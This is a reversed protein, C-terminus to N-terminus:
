FYYYDIMAILSSVEEEESDSEGLPLPNSASGLPNMQLWKRRQEQPTRRKGGELQRRTVEIEEATCRTRLNQQKQSKHIVKKCISRHYQLIQWVCGRYPPCIKKGSEISKRWRLKDYRKVSAPIYKLGLKDMIKRELRTGWTVGDFQIHVCDIVRLFNDDQPDSRWNKLIELWNTVLRHGEEGDISMKLQQAKRVIMSKIEDSLVMTVELKLKLLPEQLKEKHESTITPTATTASESPVTPFVLLLMEELDNDQYTSLNFPIAKFGILRTGDQLRPILNDHVKTTVILPEPRCLPSDEATSAASPGM